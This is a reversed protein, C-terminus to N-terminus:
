FVRVEYSEKKILRPFGVKDVIGFKVCASAPLYLERKEKLLENLQKLTKKCNKALLQMMQDNLRVTEDADNKLDDVNGWSMSSVKHIMVRSNPTIYRQDGASLLVAGASMATGCGVTIIKNPVSKFTDLLSNLADVSGGYSNIYVIIPIDENENAAKIISKRVNLANEQNFVQHMWIEEYVTSSLAM